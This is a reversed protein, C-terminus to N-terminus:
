DKFKVGDSALVAGTQSCDGANGLTGSEQGRLRPVSWPSIKRQFNLATGFKWPRVSASM